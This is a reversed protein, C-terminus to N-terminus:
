HKLLVYTIISILLVFTGAGLAMAINRRHEVKAEKQAMVNLLSDTIKSVQEFADDEKRIYDYVGADFFDRAVKNDNNATIVIVPIEPDQQKIKRYTEAGNMGPLGYDLIVIDPKMHLHEICEEGTKFKSIHATTEKSLLYDMMLSHMENDEVIFVHSDSIDKIHEKSSMVFRMVLLPLIFAEM